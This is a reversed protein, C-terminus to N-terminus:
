KAIGLTLYVIPRLNGLWDVVPRIKTYAGYSSLDPYIKTVPV